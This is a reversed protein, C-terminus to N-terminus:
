KNDSKERILVQGDSFNYMVTNLLKEENNIDNNQTGGEKWGPNEISFEFLRLRVDLSEGPLDFTLRNVDDLEILGFDSEKTSNSKIIEKFQESLSFTEVLFKDSNEAFEDGRAYYINLIENKSDLVAYYIKNYSINKRSKINANRSFEYENSVGREDSLDLFYDYSDIKFNSNIRQIYSLSYTFYRPVDVRNKSYPRVKIKESLASIIEWNNMEQYERDRIEKIKSDINDDGKDGLDKIDSEKRKKFIERDKEKIELIERDFISELSDCGHFNCLYDISGYIKGSLKPTIKKYNDLPIIKDDQLIQAESLYFQLKSQQRKEPLVYVSWPGISIVIVVLLLSYFITGLYKKNSLLFYLSLSFLWLGFVVVFYRNITIDYQNIRLFIAYFLMLTQLLVLGPFVRRFFNVLPFKLRFIYSAFYVLFGFFSFGIVMWTVGGHPWESFNIIVKFTYSYLILFYVAIAPLSIYNILFLYFKNNAAEDKKIANFLPLNSLFFIPAFLALSFSSWYAFLDGKDVVDKLNFLSFIASLAIFGLFMTALGSVVTMLIKITLIYSFAYFNDQSSKKQFFSIIFPAFFVFAVIGLFTLVIYVFTEFSANVFLSEEFFSYYLLGFVLTVIQYFWKKKRVIGCSESFFYIAVSFFFVLSLTLISKDVLNEVSHSFDECGIRVLLLVFTVVSIFASLPFRDLISIFSKKFNHINIKIM